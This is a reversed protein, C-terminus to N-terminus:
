NEFVVISDFLNTGGPLDSWARLQALSVFDFRRSEVQEAQLGRLWSVVDRGQQVEVRTPVTNIFMGIMSEVGPLEAPRGSVTTGFVVDREGSYRSLLLAWAGQVVTNVTLGNRKAAQRLGGSVAVSLWISVSESSEARHAEVPARAWPLPTPSDFGSVVGRWYGEAQVVDQEAFWALYDRCPRRSCVAPRRVRVL